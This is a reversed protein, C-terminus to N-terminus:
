LDSDFEWTGVILGVISGAADDYIIRRSRAPSPTALLLSDTSAQACYWAYNRYIHFLTHGIVGRRAIHDLVEVFEAISSVDVM